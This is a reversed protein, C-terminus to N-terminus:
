LLNLYFQFYASLIEISSLIIHMWIDDEEKTMKFLDFLKTITNAPESFFDSKEICGVLKINLILLNRDRKKCNTSSRFLLDSIDCIVPNTIRSAKPSKRKSILIDYFKIYFNVDEATESLFTRANKMLFEQQDFFLDHLEVPLYTNWANLASGVLECFSRISVKTNQNRLM